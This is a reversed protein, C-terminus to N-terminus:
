FNPPGDFSPFFSMRSSQFGSVLCLFMNHVTQEGAPGRTRGPRVAQGAPSCVPRASEIPTQVLSDSLPRNPQRGQWCIPRGVRTGAPRNAPLVPLWVPRQGIGMGICTISYFNCFVSLTRISRHSIGLILPILVIFFFM